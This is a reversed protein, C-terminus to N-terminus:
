IGSPIHPQVDPPLVFSSLWNLRYSFGLKQRLWITMRNYILIGISQSCATCDGQEDHNQQPVSVYSYKRIPKQCCSSCCFLSVCKENNLVDM